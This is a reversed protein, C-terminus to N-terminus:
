DAYNAKGQELFRLFAEADESFSFSPALPVGSNDLIVYFPQANAGFKTRQLYSWKDGYNRLKLTKDNEAIEEPVALPKRDDVYLSVLVFDREIAAKVGPKTWVSAEMKRCNVCGYGTFDVLLPKKEKKAYEMAEDYDIFHAHVEDKYLNFDQTYLPPAFASISKLPAGWLGPVMYIAFALSAMALMLRTPSINTTEGDHPLRLKGLLYLGLMAFIVIWIALFVDRNLIGWNYALDAVSLFKFALALELFGLVVKVSNLWGGSKPLSQLWAPFAAFFTFPFALALAFGLMGVAPALLSGSTAAQVLLTGIIPGTCSFSVLALTFAMFFISLLGSASDAKKDMKNSWSVPLTINFAGFFSVAFFILMFFFLLNFFASTALSNLASAGFILTILLGLGLYIAVISTSYIAVQSRNKRKNQKQKLFFSVTMPIMPWVCPTVLAILGGAFGTLFIIWLSRDAAALTQDGMEKLEGIVPTWWGAKPKDQTADIDTFSGLLGGPSPSDSATASTKKGFTFPVRTPSLCVENNCLMYEVEGSISFLAADTIKIRQKFLATKEYWQLTMKFLEDYKEIANSEPTIGGILEAGEIHEFTFSLPRPGGEPINLGYLHWGEDIDAAFTLSEDDYAFSWKAPNQLEGHAMVACVVFAAFLLIKKM